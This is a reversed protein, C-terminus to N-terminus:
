RYETRAQAGTAHRKKMVIVVFFVRCRDWGGVWFVQWGDIAEGVKAARSLWLFKTQMQMHSSGSVHMARRAPFLSYMSRWYSFPTWIM